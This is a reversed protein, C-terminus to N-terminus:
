PQKRETKQLTRTWRSGSTQGRGLHAKGLHVEAESSSSSSFSQSINEWQTWSNFDLNYDPQQRTQNLKVGTKDQTPDTCNSCFLRQVCDINEDLNTKFTINKHQFHNDPDTRIPNLKLAQSIKLLWHCWGDPNLFIVSYETVTENSALAVNTRSTQTSHFIVVPLGRM